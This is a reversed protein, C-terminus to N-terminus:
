GGPRLARLADLESPGLIDDRNRDFADFMRYPRAMAEARTIVGDGNADAGNVLQAAARNSRVADREGQSLAGDGDRDLRSFM